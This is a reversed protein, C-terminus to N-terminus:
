KLLVYWLVSLVGVLIRILVRGIWVWPTARTLDLGGTISIVATGLSYLLLLSLAILFVLMM